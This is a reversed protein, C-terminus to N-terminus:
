LTEKPRVCDEGLQDQKVDSPLMVLQQAKMVCVAQLGMCGPQHLEKM